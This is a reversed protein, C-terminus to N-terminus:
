CYEVLWVSIMGLGVEKGGRGGGGGVLVWEGLWIVWPGASVFCVERM